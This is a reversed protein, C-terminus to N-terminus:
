PAAWIEYQATAALSLAIVADFLDSHHSGAWLHPRMLRRYRAVVPRCIRRSSSAPGGSIGRAALGLGSRPRRRAVGAARADFATLLLLSAMFSRITGRSPAALPARKTTSSNPGEDLPLSAVITITRSSIPSSSKM